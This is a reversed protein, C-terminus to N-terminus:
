NKKRTFLHKSTFKGGFEYNIYLPFYDSFNEAPVNSHAGCVAVQRLDSSPARLKDSQQM